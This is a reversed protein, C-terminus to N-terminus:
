LLCNVTVIQVLHYVYILDLKKIFIRLYGKLFVSQGIIKSFKNSTFNHSVFNDNKERVSKGLAILDSHGAFRAFSDFFFIM